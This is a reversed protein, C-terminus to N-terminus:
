ERVAFHDAYDLERFGDGRDLDVGKAALAHGIIAGLQYDARIEALEAISKRELAESIAKVVFYRAAVKIPQQRKPRRGLLRSGFALHEREGKLAVAELERFLRDLQHKECASELYRYAVTVRDRVVHKSLKAM